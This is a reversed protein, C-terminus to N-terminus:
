CMLHHSEDMVLFKPCGDGRNIIKDFLDKDDHSKDFLTFVGFEIGKVNALYEEFYGIRCVMKELGKNVMQNIRDSMGSEDVLLVPTPIWKQELLKEVLDPNLSAVIVHQDFCRGMVEPLREIIKDLDKQYTKIDLYIWIPNSQPPFSLVKDVRPIGLKDLEDSAHSSVAKNGITNDHFCFWVDDQSLQIDIECGISFPFNSFKYTGMVADYTNPPYNDTDGKHLFVTPFIEGPM